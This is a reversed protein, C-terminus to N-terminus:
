KCLPKIYCIFTDLKKLPISRCYTSHLKLHFFVDMENKACDLLSICCYYAFSDWLQNIWEQLCLQPALSMVHLMGEHQDMLRSLNTTQFCDPWCNILIISWYPSIASLISLFVTMKIIKDIQSSIIVIIFIKACQDLWFSVSILFLTWQIPM